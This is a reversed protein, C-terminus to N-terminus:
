APEAVVSKRAVPIPTVVEHDTEPYSENLEAAVREAERQEFLKTGTGIQGSVASKWRIAYTKM